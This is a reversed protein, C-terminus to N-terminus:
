EKKPEWCLVRHCRWLQCDFTELGRGPCISEKLFIDNISKIVHLKFFYYDCRYLLIYQTQHTQSCFSENPWSQMTQLRWTYIIINNSIFCLTMQPARAQCMIYDYGRDAPTVNSEALVPVQYWHETQCQKLVTLWPQLHSFAFGGCVKKRGPFFSSHCNGM